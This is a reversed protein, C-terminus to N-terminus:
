IKRKGTQKFVPKHREAKKVTAGPSRGPSKGRPQSPRAPTGLMVIIRSLGARVQGPTAEARTIAWPRRIDKGYARAITIQNHVSSVIDTWAQFKEPTRLRADTWCLEQKDFRYSHEISYRLRYYGPIQQLLPMDPGQWILWIVKPNRKTDPGSLRMIRILSLSAERCKRFHLGKWCEVQVPHGEHDTITVSEDPPGWTEPYKLSFREGDLRPRGRKREGALAPASRYFTRNRATRILKGMPIKCASQMFTANGFGGDLMVATDPPVKTAIEALQGAVVLTPTEDSKVRTNALITTWSSPQEPLAAVTAFQWGPLVPKAGKPVNPVHVYTRDSATCSEPRPIPTTDGVLLRRGGSSIPPMTSIFLQELAKRDIEADDFAEYLSPWRRGFFASMSLEPFSHANTNCLLADCTNMLADKGNGFCHYLQNRFNSLTDYNSM